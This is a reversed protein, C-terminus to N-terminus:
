NWGIGGLIEESDEATKRLGYAAVAPSLCNGFVHVRMRYDVLEDDPDNNRYWLFRLYNRHEPKVMFCYFMQQIDATIGILEKRFRLLVGLLSNMMDPGSM